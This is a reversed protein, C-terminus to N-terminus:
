RSAAAARARRRLVDDYRDDNEFVIAGDSRSPQSTAGAVDVFPQQQRLCDISMADDIYM